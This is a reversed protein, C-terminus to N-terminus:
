RYTVTGDLEKFTGNKIEWCWLAGDEGRCYIAGDTLYKALAKWLVHDDGLKEGTFMAIELDGSPLENTEYRWKELAEKLSKFGGEPFIVWSYNWATQKGDSYSGGSGHKKITDLEFLDNIAKLAEKQVESRIVLKSIDMTVYYGM